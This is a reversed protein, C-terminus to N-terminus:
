WGLYDSEPGGKYGPMLRQIVLALNIGGWVVGFLVAVVGLLAAVSCAGLFPMMVLSWLSVVGPMVFSMVVVSGVVGVVLAGAGVLVGVGVAGVVAGIAMNRLGPQISPDHGDDGAASLLTGLLVRPTAGSAAVAAPRAPAHDARPAAQLPISVLLHACLLSTLM